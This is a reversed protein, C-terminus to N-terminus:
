PYEGFEHFEDVKNPLNICLQRVAVTHRANTVMVHNFGNGEKM